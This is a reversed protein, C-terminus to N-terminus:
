KPAPRLPSKELVFKKQGAAPFAVTARRMRGQGSLAIIRGPGYEPHTVVMNQHFNDASVAPSETHEVDSMAAATQLPALTTPQPEVDPRQYPTEYEAVPYDEYPDYVPEYAPQISEMEHRPLEMLFMSPVTATQRGRFNRRVASSLQLEEEARTIGVFLLRREEELQDPAQKSREHPLVGEEVAIIFIVPFELGKAAHLTMLSVRDDDAEFADTDNVLASQELFAELSGTEAHLVDFQQAATLLEEINALRELDEELKSDELDARYGSLELVHGLIEEVPQSVVAALKEQLEVFKLLATTARKSIPEIQRVREAAELLTLGHQM